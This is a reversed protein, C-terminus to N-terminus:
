TFSKRMAGGRRRQDMISASTMNAIKPAEQSIIRKVSEDGNASFNFTQQVVVGGSQGKTHDIVTENPHLVAMFGGRGDIGGSRPGRGTYGGGEFGFMGILGTGPKGDVGATGIM